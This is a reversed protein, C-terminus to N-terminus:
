DFHMLFPRFRTVLKSFFYLRRNSTDSLFLSFGTLDTPKLKMESFPYLNFQYNSITKPWRWRNHYFFTHQSTLNLMSNTIFKCRFFSLFHFFYFLICDISQVGISFFPRLRHECLM